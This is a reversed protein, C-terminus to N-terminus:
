WNLSKILKGKVPNNCTDVKSKVNITKQMKNKLKISTKFYSETIEISAYLERHYLQRTFHTWLYIIHHCDIVSERMAAEIM